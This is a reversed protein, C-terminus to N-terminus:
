RTRLGAVFESQAHLASGVVDLVDRLAEAAFTIPTPGRARLKATAQEHDFVFNASFKKALNIMPINDPECLIVITEVGHNSAAREIRKFLKLGLGRRRWPAEVSFAAEASRHANAPTQESWIADQSRLEAAGRLTGGVFAGFVLDGLGFCDRAYAVLFEDTVAHGFRMRRTTADLRLLHDRLLREEAPWLRRIEVSASDASLDM